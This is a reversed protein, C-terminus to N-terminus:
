ATPHPGIELEAETAAAAEYEAEMRWTSEVRERISVVAMEIM